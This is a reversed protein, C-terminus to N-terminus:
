PLVIACVYDEDDDTVARWMDFTPKNSAQCAELLKKLYDQDIKM